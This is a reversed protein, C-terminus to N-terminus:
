KDQNVVGIGGAPFKGGPLFSLVVESLGLLPTFTCLIMGNTTMTRMLCESYISTEAPEEDLHIVHVQDGMFAEVGQPYSKFHVESVGDQIGNTYHKVHVDLIADPTGAKTTVKIIDDKPIFGTGIDSRSGLLYKQLIDRTTEHTKGAAWYVIPEKFIKGKWDKPYRGNIHFSGELNATYTKGTRNGAILARERYVDGAQIFLLHKKYGPNAAMKAWAFEQKNYRAKEDLVNLAQALDQLEKTTLKELSNIKPHEIGEPVGSIRSSEIYGSDKFETIQESTIHPVEHM